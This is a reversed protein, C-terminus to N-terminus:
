CRTKGARIQNLNDLFLSQETLDQYICAIQKDSMKAQFISDKQHYLVSHVQWYKVGQYVNIIKSDVFLTM